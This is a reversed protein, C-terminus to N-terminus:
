PKTGATNIEEINRTSYVPNSEEFRICHERYKRDQM